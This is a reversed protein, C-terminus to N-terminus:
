KSNRGEMESEMIIRSGCGPCYSHLSGSSRRNMHYGCNDCQCNHSYNPDSAPTVTTTRESRANWGATVVAIGDTTLRIGDKDRMAKDAIKPTEVGCRRCSVHWEFLDCGGSGLRTKSELAADGGCFPCPKLENSM